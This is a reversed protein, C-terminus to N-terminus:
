ILYKGDQYIVVRTGDSKIGTIKMDKTGFMFDVHTNSINCGMQKLEEISYKLGDKLNSDIYAAGLALHCSANEDYLTEYFLINSLSIPSYYPVIAVEGLSSSGEDFEIIEKLAESNEKANYEVVKGDKFKLYFDKILRGGGDLPKSAYVIGNIRHCDPMTFNEETPINPNFYIGGKTFEGGGAWIHNKILGVTLDTGLSNEFHLSEFRYNKLIENRALFQKNLENWVEIPNNDLEVHSAKFIADALLEYANEQNPFVLNAWNKEPYGCVCWQTFNNGYHEGFFRLKPADKMRAEQVKKLSLGDFANPNNCAISVRAYNNDVLYHYKDVIYNPALFSEMTGYQIKIKSIEDDDYDVLVKSAGVEYAVKTLARVLPAAEISARIMLGQNPQLNVGSKIILEAYKNILLENM